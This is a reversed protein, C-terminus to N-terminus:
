AARELIKQETSKRIKKVSRTIIRSVTSQNIGIMRAADYSSEFTLLLQRARNIPVLNTEGKARALYRSNTYRAYTSRCTMCRCGRWYARLGHDM